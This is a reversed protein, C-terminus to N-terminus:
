RKILTLKNVRFNVTYDGLNRDEFFLSLYNLCYGVRKVREINCLRKVSTNQPNHLEKESNHLALLILRM